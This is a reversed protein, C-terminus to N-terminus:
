LLDPYTVNRVIASNERVTLDEKLSHTRLLSRLLIFPLATTWQVHLVADLCDYMFASSATRFARRHRQITSPVQVLPYTTLGAAAQQRYDM